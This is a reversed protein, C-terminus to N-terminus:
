SKDLRRSLLEQFHQRQEPKGFARNPVPYFPSARGTGTRLIFGRRTERWGALSTWDLESYATGDVTMMRLSQEDAKATVTTAAVPNRHFAARVALLPLLAIVVACGLGFAGAWPQGALGVVVGVLGFVVAFAPAFRYMPVTARLGDAWDGPEPDWRLELLDPV